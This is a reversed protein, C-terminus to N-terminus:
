CKNGTGGCKFCVIVKNGGCAHCTKGNIIDGEKCIPCEVKGTGNKCVKCSNISKSSHASKIGVTRLDRVTSGVSKMRAM